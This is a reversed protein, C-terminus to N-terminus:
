EDEDEGGLVRNFRNVLPASIPPKTAEIRQAITGYHKSITLRVAAGGRHTALLVDGYRLQVAPNIFLSGGTRHPESQVWDRLPELVRDPARGPFGPVVVLVYPGAVVRKRPGAILCWETPPHAVLVLSPDKADADDAVVREVNVTSYLTMLCRDLDQHAAYWRVGDRDFLDGVRM